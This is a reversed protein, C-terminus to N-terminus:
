CSSVTNTIHEDFSLTSDVQLGLDQVSSATTVEKGLLSTFTQLYDRYCRDPELVVLKTKDGPNILLSNIAVGILLRRYFIM